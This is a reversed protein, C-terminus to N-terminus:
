ERVKHQNKKESRQELLVQTRGKETRDEAGMLTKMDMKEKARTWGMKLEEMKEKWEGNKEDNESREEM